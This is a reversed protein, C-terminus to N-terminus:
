LLAFCHSAIRLSSASRLAVHNDVPQRGVDRPLRVKGSQAPLPATRRRALTQVRHQARRQVRERLLRCHRLCARRNWGLGQWPRPRAAGERDETKSGGLCAMPCVRSRLAVVRSPWGSRRARGDGDGPPRRRSLVTGNRTRARGAPGAAAPPKHPRESAGTCTRLVDYAGEKSSRKQGVATGLLPLQPLMWHAPAVRGGDWRRRTAATSRSRRRRGNSARTGRRRPSADRRVRCRASQTYTNKTRRVDCFAAAPQQSSSSADQRRRGQGRECVYVTRLAASAGMAGEWARNALARGGLVFFALFLFFSVASLFGGIGGAVLVTSVGGVRLGRALQMRSMLRPSAVQKKGWRAEGARKTTGGDDQRVM